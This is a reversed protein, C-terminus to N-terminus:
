EFSCCEILLQMGVPHWNCNTNEPDVGYIASTTMQLGSPVPAIKSQENMAIAAALRTHLSLLEFGDRSEIQDFKSPLNSRCSHGCSVHGLVNLSPTSRAHAPQGILNRGCSLKLTGNKYNISERKEM